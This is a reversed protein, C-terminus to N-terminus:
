ELLGMFSNASLNLGLSDSKEPVFVTSGKGLSLTILYTILLSRLLSPLLAKKMIRQLRVPSISYSKVLVFFYEM